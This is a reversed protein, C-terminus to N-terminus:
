PRPARYRLVGVNNFWGPPLKTSGVTSVHTTQIGTLTAASFNAAVLNVGDWHDFSLNAGTGSVGKLDCLTMTLHDFSANTLNVLAFNAQTFGGGTFIAGVATSKTLDVNRM